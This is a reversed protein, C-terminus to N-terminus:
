ALIAGSWGDLWIDHQNSESYLIVEGTKLIIRMQDGPLVCKMKKSGINLIILVKEADSKRWYAFIQDDAYFTERLGRKLCDMENRSHCLQQYYAHLDQDQQDCWPMPLRSEEPIGLTGQRVDKEQSLGVETGYYVIPTGGLSFQCMAALKLKRLDGDAAWLFRNMDHNDLFSPRSFSDPYYTEHRDLFDAFRRSTWTEFAFTQRIAELLMFDLCGDILGEFALQVDPPDVVEGFTWCDPNEQRTQRRFEAWFEQVPGIAYDLRFGDVGLKLWLLAADIMYQRAGPNRLNLQPLSKVGFFSEYDEPWHNFTFWKAYPSGPNTIAEQFIPHENSIHNPVFDLLIRIKRRHAAELLEQFDALTGLRPEVSFLDTADYGHHSPSPFIPSIWLTNFGIGQIYDLKETIGQIRGGFFGGLSTPLNWNLGGGPHFRDVFVQYIIADRTWAPTPDNSVYVASISGNDAFVEHHNMDVVSTRYRIITGEPQGPIMGSFRRIYGWLETDWTTEGPQMSVVTGNKINSLQGDPESGDTTWYLWAIEGQYATGATIVISIEQGPIPDRPIRQHNHVVGERLSLARQHRLAETALTGFVFDNSKAL